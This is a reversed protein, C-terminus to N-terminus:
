VSITVRAWGKEFTLKVITFEASIKWGDRVETLDQVLPLQTGDKGVAKVRTNVLLYVTADKFYALKIDLVTGRLKVNMVRAPTTLHVRTDGLNVVITSLDPDLGLLSLTCKVLTEPNIYPGYAMNAILDWSDPYAGRWRGSTVQQWMGSALIGEAITKWPFSDDYKSLRLLQYAYVLGCWQVPRGIWIPSRYFTAGYVPITAYSMVPRGPTSWLYVFPLGTYAWYRARRLYEENGTAMYGELYAELAKASALIDPTHIPIEWTQAGRPVTYREMAKLAKLGAKLAIEDGAIRAWRLVEAAMTATLGIERAGAKGLERTRENPQFGWEGDDGQADIIKYVYSRLQNLGEELHGVHFPLQWGPIHCGEGSALYGAGGSKLALELAENFRDVLARRLSLDDEIYSTLLLLLAYGPFPRPSWGSAHSWGRGPSWLSKLYAEMSLRLEARLTRPMSPEPLGYARIWEKVADLVTNSRAAYVLFSINLSGNPGLEYPKFAEDENERVWEPVTPVFLRLLHNDQREIWNPSAFEPSIMDHRGDWSYHPDWLLAILKDDERIAMLPITVKLPHPASRINFPEAIDLTNSSREGRVLWELGPFLAEDKLPGFGLEGAYMTISFRSVWGTGITKVSVEGRISGNTIMWRLKFRWKTGDLDLDTYHFVVEKEEIEMDNPIVYVEETLNGKLVRNLSAHSPFAAVPEWHADGKLMVIVPGYGFDNKVFYLAYDRVRMVIDGNQILSVGEEISPALEDPSTRSFVPFKMRHLRESGKTSAKIEIVHIGPEDAELKWSFSEHQGPRLDRLVAEKGGKVILGPDVKIELKVDAAEGGTNCVKALLEFEENVRIIPKSFCIRKIKIEPGLVPIKVYSITLKTGYCDPPELDLRFRTIIGRWLPHEGIDIEYEHFEGDAKIPIEMTKDENWKPSDRTVWYIKLASANGEVRLRLLIRRQREGIVEVEPSHLYPDFGTVKTTLGEETIEAHALGHTMIWGKLDEEGRFKWFYSRAMVNLPKEHPRLFSSYIFLVGTLLLFVLIIVKICTKM